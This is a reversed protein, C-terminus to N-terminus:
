LVNLNLYHNLLNLTPLVHIADVKTKPNTRLVRERVVLMQTTRKTEVVVIWRLTVLRAVSGVNWNQNRTPVLVVTTRM